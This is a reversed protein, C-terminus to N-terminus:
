RRGAGPHVLAVVCRPRQSGRMPVLPADPPWAARTKQVSVSTPRTATTSVVALVLVIAPVTAWATRSRAVTGGTTAGATVMVSAGVTAAVTGTVVSDATTGATRTGSEVRLSPALMLVANGGGAIAAMMAAGTARGRTTGGRISTARCAAGLRPTATDCQEAAQFDARAESLDASPVPCVRTCSAAAM